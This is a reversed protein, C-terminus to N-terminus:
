LICLKVVTTDEFWISIVCLKFSSRKFNIEWFISLLTCLLWDGRFSQVVDRRARRLLGWHFKVLWVSSLVHLQSFSKKPVCFTETSLAPTHSYIPHPPRLCLGAEGQNFILSNSSAKVTKFNNVVTTATFLLDQGPTHNTLMKLVYTSRSWRATRIGEFSVPQFTAAQLISPRHSKDHSTYLCISFLWLVKLIWQIKMLHKATNRNRKERM